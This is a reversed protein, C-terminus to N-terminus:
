LLNRFRSIWLFSTGLAGANDPRTFDSSTISYDAYLGDVFRHSIDLSVDGFELDAELYHQSNHQM